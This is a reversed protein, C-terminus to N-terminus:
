QAPRAAAHIEEPTPRAREPSALAAERETLKARIEAHREATLPYDLLIWSALLSLVVPAGVFIAQLGILGAQSGPTTADFGVLELGVFTVGVALASGIKMTGGLLAYLLATRDHGTELREEDGADALMAKLLLSAASFPAGILFMMGAAVLLNGPPTFAGLCITAAYVVGSAALARHKGFKYALRTWIPGGALAGVFYVLLLSSAEVKDFHKVREFYFFFLAAIVGPGTGMLLDAALLRQVAPRKLPQIYDRWGARAARTVVRPEPTRWIALAVTPPLLLIIFWGMAAMGQADGRVGAWALLVPLTMVFIQGLVNGSQWFAYIRSRQNYDTSLVAGWSVQALGGISYGAYIVVLWIWLHTAGVGAPPMFLMYAAPMILLPAVAMWVRFRGWRTHTRDIVAGIVPDFGIDVLRVAMFALGVVSLDMGLHNAYFEPLYVVLPLGLGALPLCPAALATLTWVSRRENAV